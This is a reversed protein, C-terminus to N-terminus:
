PAGPHAAPPERLAAEIEHGLALVLAFGSREGASRLRARLGEPGGIREIGFSGYRRELAGAVLSERGRRRRAPGEGSEELHRRHADLAALLEDVGRADRASVLLVPPIWGSGDRAGLALGTELESATREASPGLDAKNVAFVDPHELVGAKMFQLVDGAGPQAVFLLTDALDAVEAESQGVGVTEVFVRDFVASLVAVSAWTADALGGLRERAAMSRLFVGLDQAGARVRARDGLLAGGSRRSSPDVAAIGVTEGRARLRRVLADLLTSKGSGPAGTVGIRPPERREGRAARAAAERELADLMALAAERRGPRRDDILNLAAAM